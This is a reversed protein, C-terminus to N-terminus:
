SSYTSQPRNWLQVTELCAILENINVSRSLWHKCQVIVRLRNTGSLVDAVVRYTELDRGRDPAHSRMLWNTNEYGDATRVLEFVISEFGEDNLKDWQLRTSVPGSPRSRVMEGLDDVDIPLPERDDYLHREVEARVSPWDLHIIDRLDVDAGFHLHRHLDTWRAKGPVTSSVLRDLEAVRTALHDWDERSPDIDIFKGAPGVLSDIERVVEAVRDRIVKRRAQDLHFRYEGIQRGPADIQEEIHVNAEPEGVESAEFRRMEIETKSLPVADIRFGDIAPLGTLLNVFSRVLNEHEGADASQMSAWIAELNGLNSDVREFQGLVHDLDGRGSM